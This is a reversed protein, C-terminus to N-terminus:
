TRRLNDSNKSVGRGSKQWKIGDLLNQLGLVVWLCKESVGEASSLMAIAIVKIESECCDSMVDGINSTAFVDARTKILVSLSLNDINAM